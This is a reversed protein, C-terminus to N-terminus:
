GVAWGVLRGVSWIGLSVRGTPQRTAIVAVADRGNRRGEKLVTGGETSPKSQVQTLIPGLLFIPVFSPHHFYHSARSRHCVGLIGGKLLLHDVGNASELGKWNGDPRPPVKLILGKVAGVESPLISRNQHHTRSRSLQRAPHPSVILAQLIDSQVTHSLSPSLVRWIRLIPM